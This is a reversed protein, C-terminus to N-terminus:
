RLPFLDLASSAVYRKARLSRRVLGSTQRVFDAMHPTKFHAALAEEDSWVEQLRLCGPTELDYAVFYQLCGSERRTAHALHLMARAVEPVDTPAYTLEAHVIIM